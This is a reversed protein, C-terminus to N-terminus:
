KKAETEQIHKTLVSRIAEDMKEIQSQKEIPKVAELPNSMYNHDALWNHPAKRKDQRAKMDAKQALEACDCLFSAAEMYDMPQGIEASKGMVHRVSYRLQEIVERTKWPFGYNGYASQFRKLFEEFFNPPFNIELM